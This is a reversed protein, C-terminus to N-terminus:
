TTPGHPTDEEEAGCGTPCPQSAPATVGCRPCTEQPAEAAQPAEETDPLAVHDADADYDIDDPEGHYTVGNDTTFCPEGCQQCPWADLSVDGDAQAQALLTELTYGCLAAFAWDLTRKGAVDADAYLRALRDSQDITDTAILREIRSVLSM